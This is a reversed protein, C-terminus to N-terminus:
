LSCCILDSVFVVSVWGLDIDPIVKKLNSDYYWLDEFGIAAPLYDRSGTAFRTVADSEQIFVSIFLFVVAGSVLYKNFQSFFHYKNM